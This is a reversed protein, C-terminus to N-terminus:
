NVEDLLRRAQTRNPAYACSFSEVTSEPRAVGIIEVIGNRVEVNLPGADTAPITFSETRDLQASGYGGTYAVVLRPGRNKLELYKRSPAFLSSSVPETHYRTPPEPAPPNM